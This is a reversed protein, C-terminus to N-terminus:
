HWFLPWPGFAVALALGLGVPLLGIPPSPNFGKCFDSSSALSRETRATEEEGSPSNPTQENMAKAVLIPPSVTKRFFTRPADNV